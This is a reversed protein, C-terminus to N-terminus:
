PCPYPNSQVGVTLAASSVSHYYGTVFLEFHPALCWGRHKVFYDVDAADESGPEGYRTSYYAVLVALLSDCSEPTLWRIRFDWGSVTRQEERVSLVAASDLLATQAKWARSQHSYRLDPAVSLAEDLSGGVPIRQFLFLKEADTMTSLTWEGSTRPPGILTAALLFDPGMVIAVSILFSALM